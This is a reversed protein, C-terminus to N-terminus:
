GDFHDSSERRGLQELFETFSRPFYPRLVAAAAIILTIVLVALILLESGGNGGDPSIHLWREIFDM